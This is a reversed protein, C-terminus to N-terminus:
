PVFMGPEFVEGLRVLRDVRYRVARDGIDGLGRGIDRASMRGDEQLLAIIRREVDDLSVATAAHSRDDSTM